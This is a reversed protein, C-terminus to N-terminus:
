RLLCASRIDIARWRFHEVSFVMRPCYWFVRAVNSRVISICIGLVNWRLDVVRALYLWSESIASAYRVFHDLCTGGVTQVHRLLHGVRNKLTKWVISWYLGCADLIIDLCLWVFPRVLYGVRQGCFNRCSWVGLGSVSGCPGWVEYIFCLFM